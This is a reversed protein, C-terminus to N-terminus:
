HPMRLTPKIDKRSFKMARPPNASASFIQKLRRIAVPPFKQYSPTDMPLMLFTITRTM